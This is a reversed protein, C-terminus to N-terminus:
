DWNGNGNKDVYEVLAKCEETNRMKNLVKDPIPKDASEWYDDHNILFSKDELSLHTVIEGALESGFVEDIHAFSYAWHVIKNLLEISKEQTM